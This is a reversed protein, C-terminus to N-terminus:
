SETRKQTLAAEDTMLAHTVICAPQLRTHVWSAIPVPEKLSEM